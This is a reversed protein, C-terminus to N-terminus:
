HKRTKIEVAMTNADMKVVNVGALEHVVKQAKIMFSNLTLQPKM